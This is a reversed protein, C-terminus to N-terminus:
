LIMTLLLGILLVPVAIIGMLSVCCGLCGGHRAARQAKQNMKMHRKAIKMGMNYDRQTLKVPKDARQERIQEGYVEISLKGNGIDRAMIPVKQNTKKLTPKQKAKLSHQTTHSIGTGPISATTRVGKPGVGVRFGKVGTSVGVGSKSLNLRTHKGLKISKRLRLGM